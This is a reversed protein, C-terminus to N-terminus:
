IVPERVFQRVCLVASVTGLLGGLVPGTLWGMVPIAMALYFPTGLALALGSFKVSSRLSNRAGLGVLDWTLDLLAAGYFWISVVASLVPLLWWVFFSAVPVVISIIGFILLLFLSVAIEISILLVASRAGRFISKILNGQPTRFLGVRQSVLEAYVAFVPSLVVLVLFKTVKFQVWLTLLFLLGEVGADLGQFLWSTPGDPAANEPHIFYQNVWGSLLLRLRNASQSLVWGVLKMIGFAGILTVVYGHGLRHERLFAFSAAYVGLGRRFQKWIDLARMSEFNLVGQEFTISHEM